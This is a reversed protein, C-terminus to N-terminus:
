REIGRAPATAVSRVVSRRDGGRQCESVVILSVRRISLRHDPRNVEDDRAIVHGHARSGDAGQPPALAHEDDQMGGIRSARSAKPSHKTSGRTGPRTLEPDDRSGLNDTHVPDVAHLGDDDTVRRRTM